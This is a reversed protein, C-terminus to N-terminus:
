NMAIRYDYSRNPCFYTRLLENRIIYSYIVICKYLLRKLPISTCLGLAGRTSHKTALVLFVGEIAQSLEMNHIINLFM